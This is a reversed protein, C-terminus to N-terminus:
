RDGIKYQLEYPGARTARISTRVLNQSGASSMVKQRMGGSLFSISGSRIELEVPVADTTGSARLVIEATQGAQLVAPPPQEPTLKVLM